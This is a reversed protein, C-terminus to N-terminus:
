LFIHAHIWSGRVAAFLFLKARYGPSTDPFPQHVFGGGPLRQLLNPHGARPRALALMFRDVLEKSYGFQAAQVTCYLVTCHLVTCYLVTCYLATCYLVTCYLVTCYLVTCYLVTCYLVICYLLVCLMYQLRSVSLVVEHNRFVNINLARAAAPRSRQVDRLGNAICLLLSPTTLGCALSIATDGKGAGLALVSPSGPILTSSILGTGPDLQLGSGPERIYGNIHTKVTKRLWRAEGPAKRQDDFDCVQTVLPDIPMGRVDVSDQWQMLSFHCTTRISSGATSRVM